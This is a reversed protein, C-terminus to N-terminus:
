LVAPSCRSTPSMMSEEFQRQLEDQAELQDQLVAEQEEALAAHLRQALEAKTGSKALGRHTLRAQLEKQAGMYPDGWRKGQWIVCVQRMTLDAMGHVSPMPLACCFIRVGRCSAWAVGDGVRVMLGPFPAIPLLGVKPLGELQDPTHEQGYTLLDEGEPNEQQESDPSSEGQQQAQQELLAEIDPPLDPDAGEAEFLWGEPAASREMGGSNLSAVAQMPLLISTILLDLRILSPM